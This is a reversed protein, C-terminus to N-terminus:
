KKTFFSSISKTGSAAKALQKEKTSVKKEKEKIASDMKTEFTSGNSKSRKTTDHELEVLSKRKGAAVSKVKELGLFTTLKELLDPQIYEGLMGLAYSLYETDVTFCFFCIQTILAKLRFHQKECKQTGDDFKETKVFNISKAGIHFKKDKLGTALAKCKLTLWKLTKAENFKFM